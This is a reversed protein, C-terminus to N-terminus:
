SVEAAVRGGRLARGIVRRERPRVVGALAYLAAVVVLYAAAVLLGGTPDAVGRLGVMLLAAALAAGGARAGLAARAQSRLVILMAGALVTEALAMAGAAGAPGARPILFADLGVKLALSGGYLVAMSGIRHAAGLLYGGLLNLALAPLALALTATAAAAGAFGPGYLIGVVGASGLHLAGAVPVSVLLALEAARAGPWRSGTRVADATRALRPYLAGVGVIVLAHFIDVFKYAATYLGVEAVSRWRELLLVDLKYHLTLAVFALGFPALARALRALDARRAAEGRRVARPARALLWALAVLQGALPAACFWVVSRTVWVLAAGLAGTVVGFLASAETWVHMREVAQYYASLNEAYAAVANALALLLAALLAEEDLGIGWRALVYVLALMIANAATKLLHAARLLRPAAAPQRALDRVLLPHMGLTALISLIVAFAAAAGYAGFREAGLMRAAVVVAGVTFIRPAAYAGLLSLFNLGLRRVGAAERAEDEPTV